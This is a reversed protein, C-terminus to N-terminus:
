TSNDYMKMPLEFNPGTDVPTTCEKRPSIHYTGPGLRPALLNLAPVNTNRTAEGKGARVKRESKQSTSSIKLVEDRNV